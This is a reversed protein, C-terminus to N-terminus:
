PCCKKQKDYSDIYNIVDIITTDFNEFDPTFWKVNLQNKFWTMQRKAYNKSNQKIKNIAEELLCEGRFYTYLEKYGIAMISQGFIESQYLNRAEEILGDTIMKTVRTEIRQYLLQRPLQMGIVVFSPDFQNQGEHSNISTNDELLEMLRLVRKRNNPHTKEAALPNIKSLRTYLDANTMTSYFSDKEPDRKKGVFRYDYLISKIYLGSGGVLIPIINRSRLEQIKARVIQQYEAVSFEAKPDLIDILHHPINAREELPIKATGIDLQRYFQMADASIIEAKYHQALAISLATKGSATPGVIVIMTIM